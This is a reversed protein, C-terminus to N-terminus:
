QKVIKKTTAGEETIINLIYVGSPLSAVNIKDTKSTLVLRGTTDVLNITKIKAQSKVNVIDKALTPYVSIKSKSATEATALVEENAGTILLSYDQNDAVLNKNVLNGKNSVVIKYNRGAIPNKILVQEINDVVNDGKVAAGTVNALDLKWPFHVENTVTDIIRLDLDNVLKSATSTLINTAGSTVLTPKTPDLWTITVKLEEGERASVVKEDNVGSVKARRELFEDNNHTALVTQAAKLGDLMGWGFWNDPGDFEGAEMATHTLIAKVEDAYFNYTDDNTLLRKLQTIAGVVGTVKPASFSTGSGSTYGTTNASNPSIVSTGVAVIDPKIAGDKRPGVSSYGSKVVDSVQLIKYDNVKAPLNVAGVVIINKALSGTGICYAGNICNKSPIIDGEEFSTYSGNSYKFIPLINTESPGDGFYNGSSKVITFKPNNVVIMDYQYDNSQYAGFFSQDPSTMSQPNNPFYWGTTAVGDSTTKYSWGSNVGYSHNSIAENYNVIKQYVTGNSTSAFGAHKIIAKPLVGRAANSTGASAGVGEAAIFGAVSTAHSSLAQAGNELDVVRNGSDSASIRFDRHTEKVKGGDYIGIQMNEGTLVFGGVDGNQLNDVNSAANARIDEEELFWLYDNSIEAIKNVDFNNSNINKAQLQNFLAEKREQEKKFLDNLDKNDQGYGMGMVLTVFALSFVKKKM